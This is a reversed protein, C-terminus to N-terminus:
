GYKKAYGKLVERIMRQYKAGTKAAAGKFFQLTEKDVAITIKIVEEDPILEEPPPLFDAVRMLKGVPQDPDNIKTTRRKM